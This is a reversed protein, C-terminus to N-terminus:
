KMLQDGYVMYLLGASVAILGLALAIGGYVMSPTIGSKKVNENVDDMYEDVINDMNKIDNDLSEMLTEDKKEEQAVLNENEAQAM